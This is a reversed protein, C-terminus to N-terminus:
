SKNFVYMYLAYFVKIDVEMLAILNDLLASYLRKEHILEFVESHGQSIFLMSSYYNYGLESKM